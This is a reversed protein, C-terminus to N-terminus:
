FDKWFLTKYALELLILTWNIEWFRLMYV